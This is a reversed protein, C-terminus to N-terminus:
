HPRQAELLEFGKPLRALASQFDERDGGLGKGPGRSGAEDAPRVRPSDAKGESVGPGGLGLGPLSESSSEAADGVGPVREGKVVAGGARHSRREPIGANKELQDDVP